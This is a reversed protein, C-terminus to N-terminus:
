LGLPDLKEVNSKLSARGSASRQPAAPAAQQAQEFGEDAADFASEPMDFDREIRELERSSRAKRKSSSRRRKVRERGERLTQRAAQVEGSAFLSNAQALTSATEARALRVEVVPDLESIQDAHTSARAILTGEFSAPRRTVLDDYRLQVRAVPQEGERGAPLSVRALVTKREDPSVAGLPVVVKSGVSRFSRDYLERLQVGPELEIEVEARAAVTRTLSALEDDFVSPLGSPRQVFYHRGNSAQAISFLVQENYDLDVGISSISTGMTRAREALRRFAEPERLGANAEGDSLLLMRKVGGDRGQMLSMATEIGCSICTHGGPRIRGIQQAMTRRTTADVRTPPVVVEVGTDYAVVSVTDGDQLRGIMGEAAAIANRLRQGQMSGSRDIVIGLDIPPPTTAIASPDAGLELYLFTEGPRDAALVAHGLRGELQVTDGTSFSARSPQEEPAFAAPAPTQASRSDASPVPAQSDEPSWSAVAASTTTMGIATWVVMTTLKM